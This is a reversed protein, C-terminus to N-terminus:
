FSGNAKYIENVRNQIKTYSDGLAAKREDGNGFEGRIVAKADEEVDGTLTGSTHHSPTTNNAPKSQSTPKTTTNNVAPQAVTPTTEVAEATGGVIETTESAEEAPASVEDAAQEATQNENEVSNDAANDNATTNGQTDASQVDTLTNQAIQEENTKDGKPWVLFAVVAIIAVVVIPIVIKPWSSKQHSGGIPLPTADVDKELDFNRKQTKNLDYHRSSKREDAM